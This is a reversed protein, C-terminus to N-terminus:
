LLYLVIFMVIWIVDIFNWYLAATRVRSAFRPRATRWMGEGGFWLHAIVVLGALVHLAHLGTMTFYLGLFNSTAPRLGDVLENRYEIAKVVLFMAGLGFTAGLLRRFTEFSDGAAAATARVIAASSLVLFVTNAGAIPVNLVARQNPWTADGIRLLAYSSFLAGFLMVESAIFLWMGLSANTVGTDPRPESAYPIDINV